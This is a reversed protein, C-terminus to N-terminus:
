SATPRWIPRYSNEPVAIQPSLDLIHFLFMWFWNQPGFHYKSTTELGFHSKFHVSHERSWVNLNWIILPVHIFIIFFLFFCKLWFGESKGTFHKWKFCAYLFNALGQWIRLQGKLPSFSKLLAHHGFTPSHCVLDQLVLLGIRPYFHPIKNSVQNKKVKRLKHNQKLFIKYISISGSHAPVWLINNIHNQGWFLGWFDSKPGWDQIKWKQVGRFNSKEEM